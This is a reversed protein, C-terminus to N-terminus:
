ESLRLEALKKQADAESVEAVSASRYITNGSSGTTRLSLQVYSRTGPATKLQMQKPSHIWQGRVLGGSQVVIRHFGPKVVTRLYGGNRLEGIEKGDVIVVPYTGSEIFASERFMYLHSDTSSVAETKNMDFRPGTASCATLLLATVGLFFSISGRPYM